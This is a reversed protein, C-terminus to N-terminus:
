RKLKALQVHLLTCREMLLQAQDITELFRKQGAAGRKLLIWAADAHKQGALKLVSALLRDSADQDRVIRRTADDLDDLAERYGRVLVPYKRSLSTLSRSYAQEAKVYAELEDAARATAANTAKYAALDGAFTTAAAATPILLHCSLLVLLLLCLIKLKKM